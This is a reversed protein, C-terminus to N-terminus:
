GALPPRVLFSSDARFAASGNSQDVWLEDNRHRLYWGPYNSSEFSVSSDVAGAKVCFTADGRFLATREDATLRLRWMMHRLYRGDPARFSLCSPDALGAVVEFVAQQRVPDASGADVLTLVGLDDATAVFKGPATVAELSVPRLQPAASAPPAAPPVAVPPPIATPGGRGVPDASPRALVTPSTTPAAIVVPPPPAPPPWNAATVTTGVVLAGAAVSAAVPHAAVAQVLQGVLGAKLGAGTGTSLATTSTAVAAKTLATKGLLAAALAVPVPLLAFGFLLRDTAVMGDGARACVACSRTHRAIRKRWLPSPVGDWGVVAASLETCRPRATLAAVVSRSLELQLRMRQVRVGAHAVSVGLAAALDARSLQGAIELWWLSLVAREDSDIWQSARAVQRRQASLEVRLLTMGEVDTDADPVEAVEDLTATREDDVRVRRLHTSVRRLAIAVLWSRFSDPDRQTRLQRVAQLMIEQVVDDVDPHGGLARRVVTYVLPLYVRVLEDLARRDGSRAAVVLAADNTRTARM